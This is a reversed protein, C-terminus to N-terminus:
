ARRAARPRPSRAALLDYGRAQTVRVCVFQGPTCRGQVAVISDIQPAQGAHRAAWTDRGLKSDVLVRLSQGVSAATREFAIQQQAAMLRNYRDQAVDPPVHERIRAAPTGKEPSYVFAGVAEFRVERLFELLECFQEETEGPFGVIFTTRLSLGPMASRLRGILSRTQEGTVRRHMAKLVRDSIHQLPMDIYKVFRDAQALAAIMEESFTSPYAYMLRLWAEPCVEGALRDLAGILGVLGEGPGAYGIDEGYSTTDQGILNLEVAGDAFLERAEALIHELPKSAMRGRISPITCFTCKQNCGESIRLYAYHRPTLRLRATELQVHAAHENRAFQASTPGIHDARDGAGGEGGAGLVPLSLRGSGASGRTGGGAGPARQGGFAAPAGTLERVASLVDSRNNVGVLADIGALEPAIERLQGGLRSVLCGAVVVHRVHGAQKQALAERIVEVAEDQSAQLFGCTNIVVVDADDERAGVAFGAEALEGLMKESDVLNKPCGLSVFAVRGPPNSPLM